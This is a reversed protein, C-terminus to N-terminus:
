LAERPSDPPLMMEEIFSQMLKLVSPQIEHGMDFERYQVSVGLDVLRQQTRQAALLPVVQDYRGHAVLVPPAPDTIEEIPAHTYGSLVLLAALPLQLGVELTMAGGQSFGALVTRALPVGTSAELSLLWDILRQRSEQVQPQQRFAPQSFFSYDTPLDYWMRGMPSHPFPFPGNPFCFAFGPLDIYDALAAVDQANAGWGHLM